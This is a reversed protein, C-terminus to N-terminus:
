SRLKCASLRKLLQASTFFPSIFEYKQEYVNMGIELCVNEAVAREARILIIIHNTNSQTVETAYKKHAFSM